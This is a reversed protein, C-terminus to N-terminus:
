GCSRNVAALIFLAPGGAPSQGQKIVSEHYGKLQYAMSPFIVCNDRTDLLVNHDRLLATSWLNYRCEPAYYVDHLEFHFPQKNHDEDVYQGTNVLMTGKGVIALQSPRAPSATMHCPRYNLLLERNGAVHIDTGSDIIASNSDILNMHVGPLSDITCVDPSKDAQKQGKQRKAQQEQLYDRVAPKLELCQMKLHGTKGCRHCARTEVTKGTILAVVQAAIAKHQNCSGQNGGKYKKNKRQYGDGAPSQNGRGLKSERHLAHQCLASNVQM